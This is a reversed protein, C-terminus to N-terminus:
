FIWRSMLFDDNAGLEMLIQATSTPPLSGSLDDLHYYDGLANIGSKDRSQSSVPQVNQPRERSKQQFPPLIKRTDPM